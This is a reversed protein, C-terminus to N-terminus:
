VLLHIQIHPYKLPTFNERIVRTLSVDRFIEVGLAPRRDVAAVLRCPIGLGGQPLNTSDLTSYRKGGTVECLLTTGTPQLFLSYVASIERPVHGVIVSGEIVAVAYPYRIMVRVSSKRAGASLAVTTWCNYEKYVDYGRVM